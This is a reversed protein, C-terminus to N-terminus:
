FSYSIHTIECCSHTYFVAITTIDMSNSSLCVSSVKAMKKEPAAIPATTPKPEEQRCPQLHQM